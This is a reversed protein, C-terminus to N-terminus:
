QGEKKLAAAQQREVAIRKAKQVGQVEERQRAWEGEELSELKVIELFSQNPQARGRMRARATILVPPLASGWRNMKSGPGAGPQENGRSINFAPGVSGRPTTISPAPCKDQHQVNIMVAPPTGKDPLSQSTAPASSECPSEAASSCECSLLTVPMKRWVFWGQELKLLDEVCLGPSLFVGVLSWAWCCCLPCRTGSNSM